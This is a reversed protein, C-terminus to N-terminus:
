AAAAQNEDFSSMVHEAFAQAAPGLKRACKLGMQYTGLQPLGQKEDLRRLPDEILSVPFPAIALDALIAAKQGAWHPSTYAVRYALDSEELSSFAAARWACDLDALALPIPDREHACGGNLGAWVLAETVIVKVDDDPDEGDGLTVLIVDLDGKRMMAHLRKSAEMTVNVQVAPHTQAFRALLSPLRRTGFDDPTGIRVVGEIPPSRFHRVAEENLKLIRRAYGRLAEGDSTLHVSRSDRIFLSKQLIEELKKIQMSVASPTRFVYQAAKTFSSSEAVALFTRIVDIDLDPLPANPNETM